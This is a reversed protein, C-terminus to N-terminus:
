HRSNSEEVGEFFGEFFDKIENREHYVFLAVAGLALPNGGSVHDIEANSIECIETYAM